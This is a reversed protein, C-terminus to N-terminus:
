LNGLDVVFFVIARAIFVIILGVIAATITKQAKEAKEADGTSTIYLYGAVVLMAIAVLASFSIFFNVLPVGRTLYLTELDMNWPVLLGGGLHGIPVSIDSIRGRKTPTVCRYGLFVRDPYDEDEGLCVGEKAGVRCWRYCTGEEEGLSCPQGETQSSCSYVVSSFLGLFVFLTAFVKAFSSVIKNFNERM